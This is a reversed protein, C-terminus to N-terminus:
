FDEIDQFLFLHPNISQKFDSLQRLGIKGLMQSQKSMVAKDLRAAVSEINIVANNVRPNHFRAFNEMLKAM